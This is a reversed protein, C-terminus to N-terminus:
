LHGSLRYLTMRLYQSGLDLQNLLYSKGAGAGGAMVVLKPKNRAELILQTLKM